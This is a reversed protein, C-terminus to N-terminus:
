GKLILVLLYLSLQLLILSEYAFIHTGSTFFNFILTKLRIDLVLSVLCMFHCSVHLHLNSKIRTNAVFFLRPNIIITPTFGFFQNIFTYTMFCKSLIKTITFTFTIFCTINQFIYIIFLQLHLFFSASLSTLSHVSFISSTFIVLLFSCLFLYLEQMSYM